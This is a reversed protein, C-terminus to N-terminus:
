EPPYLTYYYEELAKALQDPCSTHKRGCPIGKLKKIVESIPMGEVLASVAQLNGSCGKEFRVKEVLGNEINFHIKSSCTGKTTYTKKL